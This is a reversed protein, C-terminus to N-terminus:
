FPYFRSAIHDGLLTDGFCKDGWFYVGSDGFYRLAYEKSWGLPYIDISTSGGLVLELRDQM